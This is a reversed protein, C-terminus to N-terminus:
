PHAGEPTTGSSLFRAIAEIVEENSYYTSHTLEVAGSIEKLRESVTFWNLALERQFQEFTLQDIGGGQATTPELIFGKEYRSYLFEAQGTIKSWLSKEKKIQVGQKQCLIDDNFIHAYRQQLGLGANPMKNRDTGEEQSLVTTTIDWFYEDFLAPENLRSQILIRAGSLDEAPIGFATATIARLVIETVLPRLLFRRVPAWIPWFAYYGLKMALQAAWTIPEALFNVAPWPPELYLIKCTEPIITANAISEASLALLAEDLYKATVTLTQIKCPEQEKNHSYPFTGSLLKTWGRKHGPNFYVNHNNTTSERVEKIAGGVLTLLCFLQLWIPWSFPNFKPWPVSGTLTLPFWIMMIPIYLFIFYAPLAQCTKIFSVFFRMQPNKWTTRQKRMFPTGLFVIRGLRNLERFGIWFHEPPELPLYIRSSKEIQHASKRLVEVIPHLLSQALEPVEEILAGEVAQELSQYEFKDRISSYINEVRASLSELYLEIAKLTINGGHSHAVLHVRANPHQRRIGMLKVCLNHAAARREEDDNDGSWSFSDVTEDNTLPRWVADKLPGEKLRENLQCCFNAPNQADFQYWKTQGGEEPANFTGHIVWM